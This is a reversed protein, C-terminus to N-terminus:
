VVELWRWSWWAVLGAIISGASAFLQAAVFITYDRSPTEGVEPMAIAVFLGGALAVVGLFVMVIVYVVRLVRPRHHVVRVMGSRVLLLAMVSGVLLAMADAGVTDSLRHWHATVTYAGIGTAWTMVVLMTVGRWVWPVVVLAALLVTMAITTHGSPFSNHAIQADSGALDPRPLVWRKLVETAGLGVAVIGVGACALRLGGRVLGVIAIVVVAVALSAVTIQNLVDSADRVEGTSADLSGALAADEWRQGWPTLVALVYAAVMVVASSVAIWVWRRRARALRAVDNTREHPDPQVVYPAPEYRSM